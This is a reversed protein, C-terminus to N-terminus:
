TCTCMSRSATAAQFVLGLREETEFVPSEVRFRYNGPLLFQVQWNGQPNTRTRQEVNTDGSTVVVQANPVVAGQEDTVQGGM